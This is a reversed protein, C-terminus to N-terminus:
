VKNKERMCDRRVEGEGKELGGLRGLKEEGESRSGWGRVGTGQRWFVAPREHVEVLRTM